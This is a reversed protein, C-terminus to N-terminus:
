KAYWDVARVADLLTKYEAEADFCPCAKNAYQRHGSIKKIGPYCHLLTTILLYMSRVQEPTRNDVYYLQDGVRSTGGAYCIGISNNNHGKCHAGVKAIPRGAEITGDRKIFFHYGICDYGQQKHWLDIDAASVDQDARTAACHVIIENIKRM